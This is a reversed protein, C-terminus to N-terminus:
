ATRLALGVAIAFDAAASESEGGLEAAALGRIRRFPDLFEVPFQFKEGLYDRLGRTRSAGGALFMQQIDEAYTTTKFYDITKEVELLLNESVSRLVQDVTDQVDVPVGRGLKYEEAEDNPIGLEEQLFETYQNGGIAIDRTFLFDSGRVININTSSAGVDLLAAVTGPDPDYNLEYVNQLAFADIDVVTPIKGAMSIVSTYDAIKEKKAAVLIVQLKQSGPEREIVQYDVNVEALDFPIYQEAEWQISKALEGESMAPLSVKKVIVSHGSISTAIKGNRIKKDRFIREIAEALPLKSIISGDVITDVPLSAKGLAELKYRNGSKKLEAVKVASSGIDVGVLSKPKARFWNALPM